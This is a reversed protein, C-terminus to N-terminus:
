AFSRAAEPHQYIPPHNRGGDEHAGYSSLDIESQGRRMMWPQAQYGGLVGGRGVADRTRSKQLDRKWRWFAFPGMVVGSLLVLALLAYSYKHNLALPFGLFGNIIGAPIILRGLWIHIPTLTSPSGTGKYTKHHLYGIISQAILATTVIIGLIQHASNFKKTQSANTM